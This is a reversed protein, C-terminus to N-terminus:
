RPRFSLLGPTHILQSPTFSTYRKVEKIFHSQDFYGYTHVYHQWDTNRTLYIEQVAAKYRQLSQYRKPTLGADKKFHRELTSRSYGTRDLIQAPTYDEGMESVMELLFSGHQSHQNRSLWEDLIAVRESNASVKLQDCIRIIQDGWADEVSCIPNAMVQEARCNLFPLISSLARSKFQVIIFSSLPSLDLTIDQELFSYLRSEYVNEWRGQYRCRYHGELVLILEPTIGPYAYLPQAATFVKDVQDVIWYHDIHQQLDQCGPHFKMNLASTTSSFIIFQNLSKHHQHAQAM